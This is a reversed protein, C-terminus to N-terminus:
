PHLIFVTTLFRQGGQLKCDLLSTIPKACSNQCNNWIKMKLEAIGMWSWFEYHKHGYAMIIMIRQVQSKIHEKLSKDRLTEVSVHSLSAEGLRKVQTLKPLTNIRTYKKPELGQNKSVATLVVQVLFIPCYSFSVLQTPKAM